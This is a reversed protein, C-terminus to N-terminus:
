WAVQHYGPSLRPCDGIVLRHSPLPGLAPILRAPVRLHPYLLYLQAAVSLFVVRLRDHRRHRVLHAVVPLDRERVVVHIAAFLRVQGTKKDGNEQGLTSGAGASDEDPIGLHFM